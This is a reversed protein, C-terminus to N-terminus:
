TADAKLGEEKKMSNKVKIGGLVTEEFLKRM